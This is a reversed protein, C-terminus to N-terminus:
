RTVQAVCVTLFPAQQQTQAFSPVVHELTFHPPWQYLTELLSFGNAMLTTEFQQYRFEFPHYRTLLGFKDGRYVPTSCVFRGGPRLVRKAEEFYKPVEGPQIHEITEFSIFTDISHDDVPLELVSGQLYRHKSAQNAVKMMPLYQENAFAVMNPDIDVGTYSKCNLLLSSYGCGMAADLVDAGYCLGKAFAYRYLHDLNLTQLTGYPRPILHENEDVEALNFQRAELPANM